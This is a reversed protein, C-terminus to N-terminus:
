PWSSSRVFAACATPSPRFRVKQVLNQIAAMMNKTADVDRKEVLVDGKRKVDELLMNVKQANPIEPEKKPEEKM